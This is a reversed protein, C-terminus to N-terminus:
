LEDWWHIFVLIAVAWFPMQMLSVLAVPGYQEAFYATTGITTIFAACVFVLTLFIGGFFHLGDSM